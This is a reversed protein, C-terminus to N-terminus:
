SLNSHEFLIIINYEYLENQFLVFFLFFSFDIKKIKFAVFTSITEVCCTEPCSVKPWTFEFLRIVGDRPARHKRFSTDGLFVFVARIYTIHHVEHSTYRSSPIKTWVIRAMTGVEFSTNSPYFNHFTLM